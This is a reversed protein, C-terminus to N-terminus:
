HIQQENILKSLQYQTKLSDLTTSKLVDVIRMKADIWKDHMLCPSDEICFTTGLICKNMVPEQEFYDIIEYLTIESLAKVFTFGGSRGRSTRLFGARTLETMLRRLYRKPIKTEGSVMDANFIEDGCLAMHSLIKLAYHTTKQLNM